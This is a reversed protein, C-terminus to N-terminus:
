GLTGFFARIDDVCLDTAKHAAFQGGHDYMSWRITNAHDREALRRVGFFDGGFGALGLPVSTPETPHDSAHANEHYLRAASAATGTRWNLMVNSLAFDPELDEGLLQGNWALLGAPSDTV